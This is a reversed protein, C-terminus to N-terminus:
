GFDSWRRGRKIEAPLLFERAERCVVSPQLRVPEKWTQVIHSEVLDADGRPVDFIAADHIQLVLNTRPSERRLTGQLATLRLNMVDAIGGQIPTNAIETPKPHFGFWRIRGTLAMRLFGNQEVFRVNEAVYEYYRSYSAKLAGLMTEVADLDVPFGKSRLYAFVTSADALYAVAFGANKAIDRYPKGCNCKAGKEAKEGHQPCYKGKPDRALMEQVDSQPFLIKANGTHVDGKCTAIFNEDGSLNAAFRAEAQSLDFYLLVNGPSAILQERPRDEIATSWRPFSQARCSYRGSCTGYPRWNFHARGDSHVVIANCYTSKIKGVVRWRLLAEAFHGARTDKTENDIPGSPAKDGPGSRLTAAGGTRITELTANSTSALGSKTPNLMPAKLVKFLVYRVEKLRSPKFHRRKSLNRMRGLLAAERRKMGIALLKRRKRDVRVGVRQMERGQVGLLKDHEYVSREKELDAQMARWALITVVADSAGYIYLENEDAHIPALGKEEAGRVGFRIKWPSSDLFTAVVHDLKQPYQSAFAHHAVLTDEIQAGSLDVGDVGLALHDFNYGNHFVVTRGNFFETLVDAHLEKKWPGIVISRDGDSLQVCLIPALLPSLPKIRETEIDCAVEKGLLAGAKRIEEVNDTVLFVRKRKKLEAVTHVQEIRDALMEATLEGRIWRAARDMHIGFLPAWLENHVFAFTPHLTPLVTRGALKHRWKITELKLAVEARTESDEAQALAREGNAITKDFERATWVFGAALLISNVGLVGKAAAKGLVIIPAEKPLAALERNLRPACCEAARENDKDTDGLCLTSNTIHAQKRDLGVAELQETLIQGTLGVFPRREILEKRGPGEGVIVFRVKGDEPPMAPVYVSGKCPCLDCRAGHNRPDGYYSVDRPPIPEFPM